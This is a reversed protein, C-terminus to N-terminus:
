EHIKRATGSRDKMLFIRYLKIDHFCGDYERVLQKGTVRRNPAAPWHKEHFVLAEEPLWLWANMEVLILKYEM